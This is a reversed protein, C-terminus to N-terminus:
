FHIRENELRKMVESITLRKSTNLLANFMDQQANKEVVFRNNEEARVEHWRTVDLETLDKLHTEKWKKIVTHLMHNQADKLSDFYKYNWGSDTLSQNPYYLAVAPGNLSKVLLSCVFSRESTALFLPIDEGYVVEHVYIMPYTKSNKIVSM